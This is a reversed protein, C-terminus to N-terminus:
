GCPPGMCDFAALSPTPTACHGRRSGEHHHCPPCSSSEDAVVSSWSCSSTPSCVRSPGAPPDPEPPAALGVLTASSGSIAVITTLSPWGTPPTAPAQREGLAVVDAEPDLGVDGVLDVEVAVVDALVDLGAARDLEVDRGVIVPTNSTSSSSRTTGIASIVTSGHTLRGTISPRELDDACASTPRWSRGIGAQSNAQAADSTSTTENKPSETAQCCWGSRPSGSAGPGRAPERRQEDVRDGLHEGPAIPTKRSPTVTQDPSLPVSAGSRLKETVKM